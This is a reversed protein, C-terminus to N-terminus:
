TFLTRFIWCLPHRLCCELPLMVLSQSLSVVPSVPHARLLPKVVLAARTELQILPLASLVTVLLM